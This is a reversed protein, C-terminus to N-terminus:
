ELLKKGEEIYKELTKQPVGSAKSLKEADKGVIDQASKVGASALQEARKPGLGPIDTLPVAAKKPKSPVKARAKRTKSAPPKIGKAMERLREVNAPHVSKRRKDVRVGMVKIQYGSIGAQRVEGRSFGRGPRRNRTKVKAETM